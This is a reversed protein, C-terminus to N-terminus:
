VFALASENRVQIKRKDVHLTEGDSSARDARITSTDLDVAQRRRGPPPLVPNIATTQRLHSRRMNETSVFADEDVSKGADSHTSTGDRRRGIASDLLTSFKTRLASRPLSIPLYASCPTREKALSVRDIQEIWTLATEGNEFVLIMEQSMADWDVMSYRDVRLMSEASGDFELLLARAAEDPGLFSFRKRDEAFTDRLSRARVNVLPVVRKISNINARRRTLSSLVDYSEDTDYAYLASGRLLCARREKSPGSLGQGISFQSLDSAQLVYVSVLEEKDRERASLAIPMSRLATEFDDGFVSALRCTIEVELRIEDDNITVSSPICSSKSSFSPRSESKVVVHVEARAERAVAQEIDDIKVEWLTCAIDDAGEELYCLVEEHDNEEPFSVCALWRKRQEGLGIPIDRLDDPDDLRMSRPGGPGSWWTLEMMGFRDSEEASWPLLVEVVSANFIVCARIREHGSWDDGGLVSFSSKSHSPRLCVLQQAVAGGSDYPYLAGDVAVVRPHRLRAYCSHNEYLVAERWVPSGNMWRGVDDGSQAGDYDEETDEMTGGKIAETLGDGFYRGAHRVGQVGRTAFDIVGVTPKVAVGLIGRATAKAIGTYDSPNSNVARYPELVVGTVGDFLGTGLEKAGRLFLGHASTTPQRRSEKRHLSPEFSRSSSSLSDDHASYDASLTSSFDQSASGDLNLQISSSSQHLGRGSVEADSERRQRSPSIAGLRRSGTAKRSLNPRERDETARSMTRRTTYAHDMSLAAVTGGIGATVQSVMSLSGDLATGVLSSTGRAVGSALGYASIGGSTVLDDNPVGPRTYEDDDDNDACNVAIGTCELTDDRSFLASDSVVDDDFFFASEASEPRKRMENRRKGTNASTVSSFFSAGRGFAGEFPQWLFDHVGSGVDRLFAYPMKVLELSGLARHIQRILAFTYFKTVRRGLGEATQAFADDVFLSAVNFHAEDLQGLMALAADLQTSSRMSRGVDKRTAVGVSGKLTVCADLAHLRVAKCFVSQAIPCHIGLRSSERQLSQTWSRAVLSPAPRVSGSLESTRTNILLMEGAEQKGKYIVNVVNPTSQPSYQEESILDGQMGGRSLASRGRTSTKSSKVEDAFVEGCMAVAYAALEHDIAFDLPELHVVFADLYLVDFQREARHPLDARRSARAWLVPKTPSSDGASRGQPRLAVCFLPRSSLQNDVQAHDVRIRAEVSGDPRELRRMDIDCLTLTAAEFYMEKSSGMHLHNTQAKDENATDDHGDARPSSRESVSSSMRVFSVSLAPARISFWLMNKMEKSSGDEETYHVVRRPAVKQKCRTLNPPASLDKPIFLNHRFQRDSECLFGEWHQRNRTSIEPFKRLIQSSETAPGNSNLPESSAVLNEHINLVKTPGDARLDVHLRTQLSSRYSHRKRRKVVGKRDDTVDRLCEVWRRAAQLDPAKLTVKVGDRYSAVAFCRGRQSQLDADRATLTWNQGDYDDKQILFREDILLQVLADADRYHALAPHRLIEDLDEAWCDLSQTKFSLELRRLHLFAPLGKPISKGSYHSDNGESVQDSADNTWEAVSNLKSKTGYQYALIDPALLDVSNVICRGNPDSFVYLYGDNSIAAIGGKIWSDPLFAHKRELAASFVANSLDPPPRQLRIDKQAGNADDLGVDIRYDFSRSADDFFEVLLTRKAIKRSISTVDLPREWAYKASEFPQLVRWRIDAEEPKVENAHKGGLAYNFTTHDGSNTTSPTKEDSIEEVKLEKGKKAFYSFTKSKKKASAGSSGLCDCILTSLIVNDTDRRYHECELSEHTTSRDEEDDGDFMITEERFAWSDTPFEAHLVLSPDLTGNRQRYRIVRNTNNEIRYPPWAEDAPEVVVLTDVGTSCQLHRKGLLVNPIRPERRLRFIAVAKSSNTMKSTASVYTVSRKNVDAKDTQDSVGGPSSGNLLMGGQEGCLLGLRGECSVAGTSYEGVDGDRTEATDGPAKGAFKFAAATPANWDPWHLAREDGPQLRMLMRSFEEGSEGNISAAQAVDITVDLENRLTIRPSIVVHSYRGEPVISISLEYRASSVGTTATGAISGFVSGRNCDQASTLHQRDGRLSISGVAVHAVHSKDERQTGDVVKGFVLKRLLNPRQNTDNANSNPDAKDIRWWPMVNENDSKEFALVNGESNADDEGDDMPSSPVEIPASWAGDSGVRVHLNTSGSNSNFEATGPVIAQARVSESEASSIGGKVFSSSGKLVPAQLIKPPPDWPVFEGWPQLLASSLADESSYIHSRLSAQTQRAMRAELIHCVRLRAVGDGDVHESLLSGLDLCSGFQVFSADDYIRTVLRLEEECAPVDHAILYDRSYHDEVGMIRPGWIEGLMLLLEYLSKNPSFAITTALAANHPPRVRVCVIGDTSRMSDSRGVMDSSFHEDRSQASSTDHVISLCRMKVEVAEDAHEKKGMGFFAAGPLLSSAGSERQQKNAYRVSRQNRKMADADRLEFHYSLGLSARNELVARAYFIVNSDRREVCLRLYPAIKVTEVDSEDKSSRTPIKSITRGELGELLVCFRRPSPLDENDVFVQFRQSWDYNVLRVRMQIGDDKSGHQIQLLTQASGEPSLVGRDGLAMLDDDEQLLEWALPVPMANIVTLAPQLIYHELLPLLHPEEGGEDESALSAHTSENKDSVLACRSTVFFPGAYIRSCPRRRSDLAQVWEEEFHPTNSSLESSEGSPASERRADLSGGRWADFPLQLIERPAITYLARSDENHDLTDRLQVSRSVYENEVSVRSRFTVVVTNKESSAITAVLSTSDQGNQVMVLHLTECENIDELSLRFISDDNRTSSSWVLSTKQSKLVLVLLDLAELADGDTHSSVEQLDGFSALSIIQNSTTRVNSPSDNCWTTAVSARIERAGSVGHRMVVRLGRPVIRSRDVKPHIAPVRVRECADLWRRPSEHLRWKRHRIAALSKTTATVQVPEDISIDLEDNCVWSTEEDCRRRLFTIQSTFPEVLPLWKADNDIAVSLTLDIRGELVTDRTAAFSADGAVSFRIFQQRQADLLTATAAVNVMTTQMSGVVNGHQELWAVRHRARGLTQKWMVEDGIEETVAENQTTPENVLLHKLCATLTSADVIDGILDVSDFKTTVAEATSSQLLQISLVTDWIDRHPQVDQSSRLITAMQLKFPRSLHSMCLSLDYPDLSDVTAVNFMASSEIAMKKELAEVRLERVYTNEGSCEFRWTSDKGLLMLEMGNAVLVKLTRRTDELADDFYVALVAKFTQFLYDITRHAFVGPVALSAEVRHVRVDIDVNNDEHTFHKYYFNALRLGNNEDADTLTLVEPIVVHAISSRSRTFSVEVDGPSGLTAFSASNGDEFLLFAVNRAVVRVKWPAVETTTAPDDDEEAFNGFFLAVLLGYQYKTLRLRLRTGLDVDYNEGREVTVTLRPALEQDFACVGAAILTGSADCSCEPTWDVVRAKLRLDARGLKSEPLALVVESLTFKYNKRSTSSSAGNSFHSFFSRLKRREYKYFVGSGRVFGARDIVRDAALVLTDEFVKVDSATSVGRGFHAKSGRVRYRRGVISVEWPTALRIMMDNELSVASSTGGLLAAHLDRIVKRGGDVDESLVLDDLTLAARERMKMSSAKASVQLIENSWAEFAIGRLEANSGAFLAKRGDFKVCVDRKIYRLSWENVRLVQPRSATTAAAGGRKLLHKALKEVLSDAFVSAELKGVLAFGKSSLSLNSIRLFERRGFEIHVPSDTSFVFPSRDCDKPGSAATLCFFFFFLVFAFFACTQKALLFSVLLFEFCWFRVSSSPRSEPLADSLDELNASVKFIEGSRLRAKRSVLDIEIVGDVCIGGSTSSVNRVQLSTRDDGVLALSASIEFGTERLAVRLSVDDKLRWEIRIARALLAAASSFLGSKRRSAVSANIRVNGGISIVLSLPSVLSVSVSSLAISEIAFRRKAVTCSVMGGLWLHRDTGSWGM